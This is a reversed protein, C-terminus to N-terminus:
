NRNKFGNSLKRLAELKALAAGSDLSQRAMVVGESINKAV